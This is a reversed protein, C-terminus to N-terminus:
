GYRGSRYLCDWADRSIGAGCQADAAIGGLGSENYLSKIGSLCCGNAEYNKAFM